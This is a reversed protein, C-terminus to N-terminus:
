ASKRIEAIEAFYRTVTGLPLRAFEALKQLKDAPPCVTDRLIRYVTDASRYGLAEAFTQMTGTPNDRKWTNFAKRAPHIM